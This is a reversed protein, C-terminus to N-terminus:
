LMLLCAIMRLFSHEKGSAHILPKGRHKTTWKRNEVTKVGACILTAYPQYVSLTKYILGGGIFRTEEPLAIRM